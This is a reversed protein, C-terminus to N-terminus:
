HGQVNELGESRIESLKERVDELVKGESVGYIWAVDCTKFVAGREHFYMSDYSKAMKEITEQYTKM